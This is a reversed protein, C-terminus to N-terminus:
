YCFICCEVRFPFFSLSETIGGVPTACEFLPNIMTPTPATARTKDSM